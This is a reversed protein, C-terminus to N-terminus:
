KRPAIGLFNARGPNCALKVRSIRLIQAILNIHIQAIGLIEVNLTFNQRKDCWVCSIHIRTPDRSIGVLLKYAPVVVRNNKNTGTM